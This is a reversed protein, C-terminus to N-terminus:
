NIAKISVKDSHLPEILSQADKTSANLWTDINEPQILVPMRKHIKACKDNPETTLTVLQSIKSNDYWIGAMLLPDGNAQTFLYKQKTSDGEDRWEYWGTCPVLCRRTKFSDQFTKKMAVSEGQANILLKKSWSPKIGWTTDLQQIGGNLTAITAVEQTPRLDDNSTTSFPIELLKYIWEVIPDANVNMRGCM